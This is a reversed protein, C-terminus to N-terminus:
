LFNAFDKDPFDIPSYTKIAFRTEISKLKRDTRM